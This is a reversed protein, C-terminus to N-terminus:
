LRQHIRKLLRLPPLARFLKCCIQSESITLLYESNFRSFLKYSLTPFLVTNPFFFNQTKKKIYSEPSKKDHEFVADPLLELVPFGLINPAM